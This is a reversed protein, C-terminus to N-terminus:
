PVAWVVFKIEISPATPLIRTLYVRAPLGRDTRVCLYSGELEAGLVLPEASTEAYKCDEVGPELAGQVLVRAGNLPVWELREDTLRLLLDDGTGLGLASSDLDYSQDIALTVSGSNFLAITPTPTLLSTTPILTEEAVVVIRVWFPSGGEPGIGFLQGSGGRLKYNGQYSGPDSPAVMDLSIDMSEGPSIPARLLDERRAAMDVGSFYVVAYERSWACSGANVLRWTKVFTEGPSM